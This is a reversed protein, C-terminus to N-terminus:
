KAAKSLYQVLADIEQASLTGAYDKPMLDDFGAALKASPDVISQKIEAASMGKLVKGLDPGTTGSTGADALTHCSGCAQATGNGATFLTKGDPKGGPTPVAPAKQKALWATFTAPTVVTASNRMTSHGLGCLEACVVPYTGLRAPTIRYSTDIGPVAALRAEHWPGNDVRVEVAEIGKHQAWAVGAVKVQGPALPSGAAPLTTM